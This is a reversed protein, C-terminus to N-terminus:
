LDYLSAQFRAEALLREAIRSVVVGHDIFRGNTGKETHARYGFSIELDSKLADAWAPATRGM